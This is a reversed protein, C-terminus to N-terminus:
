ATKFKRVVKSLIKAQEKVSASDQANKGASESVETTIDRIKLVNENVESTVMNQQRIAEAVQTTMEMIARINNTTEALSASANAVQKASDEGQKQCEQMESVISSTREQLTSIISEIERTSEQTRMALNRVEDAVVAFGRGQEGARAAEIAANLALLNTQEAIGRIVDLVSGITQSDVELQNVVDTVSNLKSSLVNIQRVSEDIEKKRAITDNNTSEAREAMATTNNAVEAISAEMENAATAVMDSEAQQRLMSSSTLQVNESLNETARDLTISATHVDKILSQFADLLSDVFESLSAIEDKGQIQTRLTLDNNERSKHVISRMKVLPKVISAATLMVLVMVVSFILIFLVIQFILTKTKQAELSERGLKDLADLSTETNHIAQRMEGLVGMEPTLGLQQQKEVLARFQRQYSDIADGLQQTLDPAYGADLVAQRFAEVNGNFRDLYKMDERLMFDKENRRLQLMAALLKYDSQSKLAEEVSHVAARLGGYLGDKPHLGIEKQLEVLRSFAEHYEDVRQGLASFPATEIGTDDFFQRLAEIHVKLKAYNKDHDEAYKLDKRMLFDKENRRLIFVQTSISELDRLALGIKTQNNIEFMSLGILILFGIGVVVANVILRRRVTLKQFISM